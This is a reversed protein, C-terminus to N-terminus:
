EVPDIDDEVAPIVVTAAHPMSLGEAVGCGFLGGDRTVAIIHYVALSVAVVWDDHLAKM